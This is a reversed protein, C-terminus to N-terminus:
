RATRHSNQLLCGLPVHLKGIYYRYDPVLGACYGIIDSADAEAGEEFGIHPIGITGVVAVNRRRAAIWITIGM